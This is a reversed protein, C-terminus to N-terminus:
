FEGVEREGVTGTSRSYDEQFPSWPTAQDKDVRGGLLSHVLLHSAELDFSGRIREFDLGGIQCLGIGYSPASTELLQAMLGAEIDAFHRSHEGYMPAIASLQAILFISFAAEDFIPRNILPDYVTRDFEVEGSLLVVRHDVSHYYYIGGSLGEVREPKIYLYTQVPYLGGASAYLYKPKGDM